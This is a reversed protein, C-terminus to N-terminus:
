EFLAQYTTDIVDDVFSPPYISLMTRWIPRPDTKLTLALRGIANLSEAVREFLSPHELELQENALAEHDALCGFYALFMNTEERFNLYCPFYPMAEHLNAVFRRAEPIDWLYRPDDDLPFALICMGWLTALKRVREDDKGEVALAELFNEVSGSRLDAPAVQLIRLADQGVDFLPDRKMLPEPEEGERMLSPPRVNKSWPANEVENKLSDDGLADEYVVAIALAMQAFPTDLEKQRCFALVLEAASEPDDQVIATLTSLDIGTKGGSVQQMSALLKKVFVKAKDESSM